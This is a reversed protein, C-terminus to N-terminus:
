PQAGRVPYEDFHALERGFGKIFQEFANLGDVPFVPNWLIPFERYFASRVFGLKGAYRGALPNDLFRNDLLQLLRVAGLPERLVPRTIDNFDNQQIVDRQNCQVGGTRCQM